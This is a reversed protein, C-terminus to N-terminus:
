LKKLLKPSIEEVFEAFSISEVELIKNFRAFLIDRLATPEGQFIRGLDERTLYGKGYGDLDKFAKQVNFKASGALLRRLHELEEESELIKDWVM